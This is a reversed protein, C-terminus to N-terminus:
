EVDSWYGNYGSTTQTAGGVTHAGSIAAVMTWAADVDKYINDIFIQELGDKGDKGHCGHEPSPMRGTNWACDAVSRRGWKFGNRFKNFLSDVANVDAYSSHARAMAAEAIIVIFDALSVKDKHEDFLAPIGFETLCQQLGGNDEDLFNICGDSGGENESEVRYDMFDHGATRLLCAVMSGRKNSQAGLESSLGDFNAFIATAISDYDAETLNESFELSDSFMEELYTVEDVTQVLTETSNGGYGFPCKAKTSAEINISHVVQAVITSKFIVSQM